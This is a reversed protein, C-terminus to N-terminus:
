LLFIFLFQCLLQANFEIKLNRRLENNYLVWFIDAVDLLCYCCSVVETDQIKMKRIKRLKEEM